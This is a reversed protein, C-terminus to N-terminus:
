VEDGALSWFISGTYTGSVTLVISVGVLLPKTLQLSIQPTVIDAYAIPQAAGDITVEAFLTGTWALTAIVSLYDLYLTTNAPSTYLTIASIFSTAKGSKQVRGAAAM